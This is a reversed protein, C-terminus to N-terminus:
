ARSSSLLTWVGADVIGNVTVGNATQFEKVRTETKQGFDGDKELDVGPAGTSNKWINLCFQLEWNAGALGNGRRLTPPASQQGPFFRVHFHNDHNPWDQRGFVHADNFFVFQVRLISNTWFLGILSQTRERSYNASQWTTGADAWDGRILRVDFDIGKQHSAHGDLPGGGKKSIDGVGFHHGPFRRLFLAGVEQIAAITEPIGYRHDPDTYAYVGPGDVLQTNVEPHPGGAAPAVAPAALAAAPQIPAFLPSASHGDLNEPITDYPISM